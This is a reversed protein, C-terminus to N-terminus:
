MDINEFNFEASLRSKGGLFSVLESQIIDKPVAIRKETILICWITNYQIALMTKWETVLTKTRQGLLKAKIRPPYQKGVTLVM